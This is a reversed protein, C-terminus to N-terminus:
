AVLDLQVQVGVNMGTPETQTATTDFEANAAEEDIVPLHTPYPEQTPYSSHTPAAAAVPFTSLAGLGFFRAGPVVSQLVGQIAANRQMAEEEDEEDVHAQGTELVHPTTSVATYQPVNPSIISSLM